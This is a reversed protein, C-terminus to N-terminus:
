CSEVFVSALTVGKDNNIKGGTKNHAHTLTRKKSKQRTTTTRHRDVDEAAYRDSSLCEDDDDFTLDSAVDDDDVDMM